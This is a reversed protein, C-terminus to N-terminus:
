GRAIRLTGDCGACGCKRGILERWKPKARFGRDRVHREGGKGKGKGGDSGSGGDCELRVGRITEPQSSKCCRRAVGGLKHVIRKWEANHHATPGAMVHAIEHLLTMVIEEGSVARQVLRARNFEILVSRTKLRWTTRGQARLLRRNIAFHVGGTMLERRKGEHDGKVGKVVVPAASRSDTPSGRHWAMLEKAAREVLGEEKVTVAGLGLRMLAAVSPLLDRETGDGRYAKLHM